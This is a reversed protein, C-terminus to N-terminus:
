GNSMHGQGSFPKFSVINQLKVKSSFEAELCFLPPVSSLKQTGSQAFSWFDQIGNGYFVRKAKRRDM